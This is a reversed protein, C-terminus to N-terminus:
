SPAGELDALWKGFHPCAVRLRDLGIELIALPGAVVKSYENIHHLIRKSPATLPSDNIEEPNPFGQIDAKLAAIADAADPYATLLAEPHSLVLAEFEYSFLFPRFQPDSIDAKWADLLCQAKEPGTSASRKSAPVPFDKPLGYLDLLTTLILDPNKWQKLLRELDKRIPAYSRVGGRSIRDKRLSNAVLIPGHCPIGREAFSPFLIEKAFQEETEGEVYFLIERSV